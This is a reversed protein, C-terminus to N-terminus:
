EINNAKLDICQDPTTLWERLSCAPKLNRFCKGDQYAEIEFGASSIEIQFDADIHTIELTISDGRDVSECPYTLRNKLRQAILQIHSRKWSDMSELKSITMRQTANKM